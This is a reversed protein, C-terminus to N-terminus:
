KIYYGSVKWEGDVKMPTITEIANPKKAFDTKFQIVVYEGKPANPLQTTYQAGLLTRSKTKGLPERVKAVMGEWAEKKVEKKFVPAAEEWSQGYNGTDVVALWKKAAAVAAEVNEECRGPTSFLGVALVAVAPALLFKPM